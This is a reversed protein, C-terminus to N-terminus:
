IIYLIGHNMEEKNRNLFGVLESVGKGSSADVAFCPSSGERFHDIWQKTIDPDALDPKTMVYIRRKKRLYPESLELSTKPIRSDLLFIFLDVLDM